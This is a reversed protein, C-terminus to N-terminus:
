ARRRINKKLYSSDLKFIENKGQLIIMGEVVKGGAVKTRDRSAFDLSHIHYTRGRGGATKVTVSDTGTVTGKVKAM